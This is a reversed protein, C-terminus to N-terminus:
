LCIYINLCSVIVTESEIKKETQSNNKTKKIKIQGTQSIWSDVGAQVGHLHPDVHLIFLWHHIWSHHELRPVQPWVLYTTAGQPPLECHYVSFLQPCLLFSFIIFIHYTLVLAFYLTDCIWLMCFHSFLIFCLKIENNQRQVFDKMQHKIPRVALFAPSIAVWCVRWFLGPAKGLM